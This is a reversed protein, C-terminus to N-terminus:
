SGKLISQMATVLAFLEDFSGPPTSPVGSFDATTLYHKAPDPAVPTEYLPNNIMEVCQSVWVRNKDILALYVPYCYSPCKGVFIEQIPTTRCDLNGTVIGTIAAVSFSECLALISGDPGFLGLQLTAQDPATLGTITLPTLEGAAFKEPNSLLAQRQDDVVLNM